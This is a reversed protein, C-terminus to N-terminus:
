DAPADLADLAVRMRRALLVAGLSEEWALARTLRERAEDTRGLVGALTGLAFTSSCLVHTCMSVLLQNDWPLLEDFLAAAREIEELGVALTALNGLTAARAWDYTLTHLGDAWAADFENRAGDLDGNLLRITGILSAEYRPQPTLGRLSEALALAGVVDDDDATAIEMNQMFCGAQYMLDNPATRAVDGVAQRATDLDGRLLGLIVTQQYAGPNGDAGRNLQRWTHHIEDRLEELAPLQGVRLYALGAAFLGAFSKGDQM